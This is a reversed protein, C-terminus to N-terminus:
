IHNGKPGYRVKGSPLMLGDSKGDCKEAKLRIKNIHSHTSSHKLIGAIIGESYTGTRQDQKM